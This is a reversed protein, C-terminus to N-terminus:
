VRALVEVGPPDEPPVASFGLQLGEWRFRGGWERGLETVEVDEAAADRVVDAARLGPALLGATQLGAEVPSLELQEGLERRVEDYLVDRREAYVERM